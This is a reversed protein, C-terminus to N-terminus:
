QNPIKPLPKHKHAPSIPKQIVNFIHSRTILYSIIFTCIQIKEGEFKRMKKTAYRGLQFLAQKEAQMLKKEIILQSIEKGISCGVIYSYQGVRMVTDDQSPNRNM